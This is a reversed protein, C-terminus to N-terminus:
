TEDAHAKRNRLDFFLELNGFTQAWALMRAQMRQWADLECWKPPDACEFRLGNRVRQASSQLTCGSERLRKWIEDEIRWCAEKSRVLDRRSITKAKSAREPTDAQEITEGDITLQMSM